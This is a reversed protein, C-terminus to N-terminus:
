IRVLKVLINTGNFEDLVLLSIISQYYVAYAKFM